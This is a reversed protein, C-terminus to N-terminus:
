SPQCAAGVLGRLRINEVRVYAQGASEALTELLAAEDPDLRTGDRHVGYLVVGALEDGNFVPVAITPNGVNAFKTAVRDNLEDIYVSSRETILFRVIDADRDLEATPQVLGASMALTFAKGNRRFLAAMELDLEGYPDEVLARDVTEEREACPLTRALRRLYIEAAHKKRYIMSDVWGELTPTLRHMVIGISIAIIADLVLAVRMEALFRTAAWDAAAIIGFIATMMVGYVVAKSLVFRIDIVHRRVIAYMLTLPMLMTLTGFVGPWFAENGQRLDNMIIGVLIAAAVWWFRARASPEMKVLRAVIALVVAITMVQSLAVQLPDLPSFFGLVLMRYLSRLAVSAITGIAAIWFVWGRWDRPVREDPVLLAFLFLFVSALAASPSFVAIIAAYALPPWVTLAQYAAGVPAEALCYAFLLWTMISPRLIVLACGVFLFVVYSLLRLVQMTINGYFTKSQPGPVVAFALNRRPVTNTVCLRILDPEYATQSFPIRLMAYDRTDICGIIDGAHLGARDAPSGADVATVQTGIVDAGTYATTFRAFMSPAVLALFLVSLAVVVLARWSM